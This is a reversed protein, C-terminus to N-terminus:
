IQSYFKQFESNQIASVTEYYNKGYNTRRNEGLIDNTQNQLYLTVYEEEKNPFSLHKNDQTSKDNKRNFYQNDFQYNYSHYLEHALLSMPSNRGLDIPIENANLDSPYIKSNETIRFLIGFDPNFKIRNKIPIFSNSEGREIITIDKSSIIKELVNVNIEGLDNPKYVYVSMANKQYLTNLATIVAVQFKTANTPPKMDPFYIINPESINEIDNIILSNKYETSYKDYQKKASCFTLACIILLVFLKILTNRVNM